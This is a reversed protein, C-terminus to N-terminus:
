LGATLEHGHGAVADVVRRRQFPRVDANRHALLASVDRAFGRVHHQQVVTERRDHGRHVLATTDEVVDTFEDLVHHTRVRALNPGQKERGEESQRDRQQGDVYEPDVKHRVPQRREREAGLRGLAPNHAPRRSRRVFVQERM